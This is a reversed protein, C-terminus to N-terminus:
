SVLAAQRLVVVDGFLDEGAEGSTKCDDTTEAQDEQGDKVGSAVRVDVLGHEGHEDAAVDNRCDEDAGFVLAEAHVEALVADEAGAEPDLESENEHFASKGDGETDQLAAARGVFGSDKLPDDGQDVDAVDPREDDVKQGCGARAVLLVAESGRDAGVVVLHGHVSLGRAVIHAARNVSSTSVSLVALRRTVVTGQGHSFCGSIHRSRPVKLCLSVFLPVPFYLISCPNPLNIPTINLVFVKEKRKTNHFFPCSLALPRTSIEPVPAPHVIPRPKIGIQQNALIISKVRLAKTVIQHYKGNKHEKRSSTPSFQLYLSTFVTAM